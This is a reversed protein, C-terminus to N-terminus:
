IRIAVHQIALLTALLGCFFMLEGIRAVKPNSALAYLLLGVVAVLLTVGIVLM